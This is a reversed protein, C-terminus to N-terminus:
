EVNAEKDGRCFSGLPTGPTPKSFGLREYVTKPVDEIRRYITWSCVATGDSPYTPPDVVRVPYGFNEIPMKELLVCCHACYACIGKKNWAFAHKEETVRYRFPPEMLPRLGDLPEGVMTRGGSGCPTFTVTVRDEFEEVTMSGDREAGSLHGHMAEFTLYVLLEFAQDWDTKAVDFQSYRQTFWGGLVWDEYMEGLAPEGLQRIVIDMLGSIFDVDADHLVRWCHQLEDIGSSSDDSEVANSKLREAASELTAWAVDRGDSIEPHFDQVLKEVRQVLPEVQDPSLKADLFRGIDRRWSTYIDFIVRAEAVFMNVLDHMARTNGSDLAERIKPVTGIALDQPGGSRIARGLVPSWHIPAETM